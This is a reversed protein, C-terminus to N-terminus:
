KKIGNMIWKVRYEFEIRLQADDWSNIMADNLSNIVLQMVFYLFSEAEQSDGIEIGSDVLLNQWQKVGHEGVNVRKSFISQNDTLLKIKKMEDDNDSLNLCTVLFEEIGGFFDHKKDAIAQMIDAHIEGAYCMILYQYADNLDDFYKYFIGRSMGLAEVIRSVKVQSVPQEAFIPLMIDRIEAQRASELNNFTKKPM